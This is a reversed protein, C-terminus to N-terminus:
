LTSLQPIAPVRAPPSSAAVFEACRVAVTGTRDGEASHEYRGDGPSTVDECERMGRM